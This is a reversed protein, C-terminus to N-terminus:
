ELGRSLVWHAMPPQSQPLPHPKFRGRQRRAIQKSKNLQPFKFVAWINERKNEREPRSIEEHEGRGGNKKSM